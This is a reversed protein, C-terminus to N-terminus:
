YFEPPGRRKWTPKRVDSNWKDVMQKKYAEHVPLHKYDTTCNVFPTTPGAVLMHRHKFCWQIVAYCKHTSPERGTRYERELLMQMALNYLYQFNGQTNGTWLTCPHREHANKYPVDSANHRHLASCLMQAGELIMKNLRLDDLMQANLSAKRYPVFINM